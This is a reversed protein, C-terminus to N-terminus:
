KELLDDTMELEYKTTIKNCADQMGKRYENAKEPLNKGSEKWRKKNPWQAYAIYELDKNKHLRSGKSGEYKYILNTLGKWSERFQEEKGPKVEFIYIVAFM